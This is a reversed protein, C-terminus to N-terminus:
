QYTRGDIRERIIDAQGCHGSYERLVHLYAWRLSLVGWRPSTFTDTLALGSAAEDAASWEAQYRAIDDAAYGPEAADFARDPNEPTRYLPAVEQGAFRIRFWIREVDTLHRVIGLLSLTSPPASRTVLQEPTLGACRKLASERARQLFGQLMEREGGQYPEDVPVIDPVVWTM